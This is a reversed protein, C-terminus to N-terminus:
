RKSCGSWPPTLEWALAATGAYDNSPDYHPSVSFRTYMGHCCGHVCRAVLLLNFIADIVADETCGTSRTKKQNWGKKPATASQTAVMNDDGTVTMGRVCLVRKTIANLTTEFTDFRAFDDDTPAEWTTDTECRRARAAQRADIRFEGSSARLARVIAVFRDHAM